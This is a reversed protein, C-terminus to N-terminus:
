PADASVAAVATDIVSAFVDRSPPDCILAATFSAAWARARVWVSEDYVGAADLAVRLATAAAPGFALDAIALDNAPDGSTVDGFDILGVLRGDRHLLNLPHLDGHLWRPEGPWPTADLGAEWAARLADADADGRVAAVTPWRGTVAAARAALPVGRFPNEPADDPAPRHLSVLTEALGPVLEAREALPLEAVPAGDIWRVMSWPWPYGDSPHGVFVPEPVAVPLHSALQPVSRAENAILAAAVERRPLRVAWRDGLRYTVNDWGEAVRRLMGSGVDPHRPVLQEDLLRRVLDDDIEVEAAPVAPM